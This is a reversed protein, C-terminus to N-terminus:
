GPSEFSIKIATKGYKLSFYKININKKRRCRKWLVMHHRGELPVRQLLREAPWVGVDGGVVQDVLVPDQDAVLEGGEDVVEEKSERSLLRLLVWLSRDFVKYDWSSTSLTAAESRWRDGELIIRMKLRRCLAMLRSSYKLLWSQSHFESFKFMSILWSVGSSLFTPEDRHLSGTQALHEVKHDSNPHLDDCFVTNWSEWSFQQQVSSLHKNWKELQLM